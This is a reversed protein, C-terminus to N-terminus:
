RASQLAINRVTSNIGGGSQRLSPAIRLIAVRIDELQPSQFIFATANTQGDRQQKKKGGFLKGLGGGILTGLIGGLPGGLFGLTGGGAGLASGAAGGLGSLAGGMGGSQYGQIAGAVYSNGGVRDWWGRKQNNNYQFFENYGGPNAAGAMALAGYPYLDPGYSAAGQTRAGVALQMAATGGGGLGTGNAMARAFANRMAVEEWSQILGGMGERFGLLKGGPPKPKKAGGGGPLTRGGGAGGGPSVNGRLAINNLVSQEVEYAVQEAPTRYRQGPALPGQTGPAVTPSGSAKYAQGGAYVSIATAMTSINGSMLGMILSGVGELKAGLEAVMLTAGSIMGGFLDGATTSGIFNLRVADLYDAMVRLSGNFTDSETVTSGIAEKFDGVSLTLQDMSGKYDTAKSRAINMGGATAEIILNLRESQTKADKADVGYQKLFRNSGNISRAVVEFSSVLDGGTIANLQIAAQTVLPMAEAGLNTMVAAVAQGQALVDADISLRKQMEKNYDLLATVNGKVSNALMLNQRQAEGSEKVSEQLFRVVPRLANGVQTIALSVATYGTAFAAISSAQGGTLGLSKAFKEGQETLKKLEANAKDVGDLRIYATLNPGAM